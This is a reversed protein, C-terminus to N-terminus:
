EHQGGKQLEVDAVAPRIRSLLVTNEALLSTLRANELNAAALDAELAKIRGRVDRVQKGAALPGFKTLWKGYHILAAVSMVVYLGGVIVTVRIVELFWRNDLGTDWINPKTPTPLHHPFVLIALWVVIGICIAYTAYRVCSRTKQWEQAM